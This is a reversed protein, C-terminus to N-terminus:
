RAAAASAVGARSPALASEGRALHVVADLRVAEARWTSDTGLQMSLYNKCDDAVMLVFNATPSYCMVM